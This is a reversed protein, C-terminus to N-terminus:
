LERDENRCEECDWKREPRLIDDLHEIAESLTMEERKDCHRDSRELCSNIINEAQVCMCQIGKGILHREDDGWHENSLKQATERIKQLIEQKDYYATSQEMNAKALKASLVEITDAAERLANSVRGDGYQDIEPIGSIWNGIRRLEKVQESLTSM